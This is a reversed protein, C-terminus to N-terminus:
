FHFIEMFYSRVLCHSVALGFRSSRGAVSLSVSYRILLAGKGQPRKDSFLRVFSFVNASPEARFAEHSMACFDLGVGLDPPRM